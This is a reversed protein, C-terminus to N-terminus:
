FTLGGTVPFNVGTIYHANESLLFKVLPAIDAPLANRKLPHQQASLEIIKDPIESLFSTEVMSPSVANINLHKDAYERALSKMLGLLAYKATLYHSLAAPPVGLTYSSLLFIVRGHKVQAMRPLFNMLIMAAARLQINLHVLFDSWTLNKFRVNTVKPAALLLINEPCPCHTQATEILKQTEPEDALNAILPILRASLKEALSEIKGASQHYHALIVADTSDIARIIEGGIDSSAGIILTTHEPM